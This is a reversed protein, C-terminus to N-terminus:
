VLSRIKGLGEGSYIRAARDRIPPDGKQAPRQM